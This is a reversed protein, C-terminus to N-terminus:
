LGGHLRMTNITLGSHDLSQAILYVPAESNTDRKAVAGRAKRNAVRHETRAPKASAFKAPRERNRQRHKIASGLNGGLGMYGSSWNSNMTLSSDSLSQAVGVEAGALSMAASLALAIFLRSFM